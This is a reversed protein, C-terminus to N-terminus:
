KGKKANRVLEGKHLGEEGVVGFGAFDEAEGGVVGGEGEGFEDLLFAKGAASTVLAFEVSLIRLTNSAVRPKLVIQIVRILIRFLQRPLFLLTLNHLPLKRNVTRRENREEQRGTPASPRARACVVSAGLLSKIREDKRERKGRETGDRGASEGGRGCSYV